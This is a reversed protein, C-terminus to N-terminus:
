RFLSAAHSTRSSGKTETEGKGKGKGKGMRGIIHNQVICKHQKQKVSDM